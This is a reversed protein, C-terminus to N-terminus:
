RELKIGCTGCVASYQRGLLPGLWCLPLCILFLLVFAIWGGTSVKGEYRPPGAAGCFPCRVMGYNALVPAPSVFAPSPAAVPPAYSAPAGCRACERAGPQNLLGCIPCQGAAVPRPAPPTAGYSPM